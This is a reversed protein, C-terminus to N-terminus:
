GSDSRVESSHPFFHFFCNVNVLSYFFSISNSLLLFFLPFFASREKTEKWQVRSLFYFYFMYYGVLM